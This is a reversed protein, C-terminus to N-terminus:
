IDFVPDCYCPLDKTGCTKCFHSFIELREDDTLEKLMEVLEDIRKSPTLAM